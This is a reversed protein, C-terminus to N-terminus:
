VIKNRGLYFGLVYIFLKVLQKKTLLLGKNFDQYTQYSELLSPFSATQWQGKAFQEGSLALIAGDLSPEVTWYYLALGASGFLLEKYSRIGFALLALSATKIVPIDDPKIKEWQKEAFSEGEEMYHWLFDEDPDTEATGLMNTDEKFM